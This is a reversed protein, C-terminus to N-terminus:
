NILFDIPEMGETGGKFFPTLPIKFDAEWSSQKICNSGIM